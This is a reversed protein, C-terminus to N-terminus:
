KFTTLFPPKQFPQLYQNRSIKLAYENVTLYIVFLDIATLVPLAIGGVAVWEFLQYAVFALLVVIAALHAWAIGLLLVIVLAVHLIGHASFYATYFTLDTTPVIGALAIIRTAAFNDPDEALEASFLWEAFVPMQDALGLFIAAAIAIQIVGLIGKAILTIVFLRREADRNHIKERRM